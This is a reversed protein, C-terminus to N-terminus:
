RVRGQRWAELLLPEADFFRNEAAATRARALLDRLSLIQQLAGDGADGVDAVDQVANMLAM